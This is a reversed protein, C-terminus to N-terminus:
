LIEVPERYILGYENCYDKLNAEFAPLFAESHKLDDHLREQAQDLACTLDRYDLKYGAEELADQVNHAMVGCGELSSTYHKDPILAGIFCKSGEAGRYACIGEDNMSVEGQARMHEAGKDIMRQLEAKAQKSLM